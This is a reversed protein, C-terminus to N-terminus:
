AQDLMTVLSAELRDLDPIMAAEGGVDVDRLVYSSEPQEAGSIVRTNMDNIRVLRPVGRALIGVYPYPSDEQLTNCICIRARPGPESYTAGATMEFVLLPINKRRWKIHGLVWDPTNAIPASDRYGIVEAVAANPLLLYGQHLPILLGLLDDDIAEDNM